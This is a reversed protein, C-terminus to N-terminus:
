HNWFVHVSGNEDDITFIDGSMEMDRAMRQYDIYYALHEPIETTDETLEQVFDAVSSFCGHYHDSAATNAEDLNSNFHNFLAGSIDPYENLFCVYDVICELSEHESIDIGDFNEHDHIAWEEADNVPSEKLMAQIQENILEEGGAANVWVGHLHGANYAALDAVYIRPEYFNTM